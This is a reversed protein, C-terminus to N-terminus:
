GQVSQECEIDMVMKMHGVDMLDFPWSGAAMEEAAFLSKQRELVGFEEAGTVRSLVPLWAVRM